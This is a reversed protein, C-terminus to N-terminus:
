GGESLINLFVNDSGAQNEPKGRPLEDNWREQNLWTAPHPIYQGGDRRWQDSNKQETVARIMVDTLDDDPKIKLFANYAVKKGAKRPYVDWFRDFRKNMSITEARKDGTPPSYPPIDKDKDKDKEKVKDKVKAESQKENSGSAEHQKPKSETAEIQKTNSGNAEGGRRGNERRKNNADIQPKAMTLFVRAIQSIEEPEEGYIGYRIVASVAEKFEDASLGEVAEFFSRYFVMGDNM